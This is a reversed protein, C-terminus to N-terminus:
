CPKSPLPWADGRGLAGRLSCVICDANQSQLVARVVGREFRIIQYRASLPIGVVASLMMTVGLSAVTGNLSIVAPQPEVAGSIYPDRKRAEPGLFDRRVQEPDLLNSCVLCALGPALMQVRGAMTKVKGEKAQIHIGLDIAPIMYQYAIQNLVTRSGHSDTCGFLFDVDFLRRAEQAFMIDGALAQVTADPHISSIMRAALRAKKEGVDRRTAGVLRNLNSEEVSDPDLLVFTKVGLHALQEAVISGIGGLGVIGVKLNALLSQGFAGFARVNRDFRPLLTDPSMSSASHFHVDRGIEVISAAHRDLVGATISFLRAAAEEIGLVLSGHSQARTRSFIVPMTEAEAADDVNSFHARNEFPHTHALVLSWGENRARKLRPMLFNPPLVVRYEEQVDYETAPVIYHERVLLRKGSPTAAHGAILVAAAEKPASSLLDSRLRSLSDDPFVLGNM